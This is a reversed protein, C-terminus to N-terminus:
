VNSTLADGTAKSEEVAERGGVVARTLREPSPCSSCSSVLGHVSEERVPGHANQAGIGECSELGGPEQVVESGRRLMAEVPALLACGDVIDTAAQVPTRQPM